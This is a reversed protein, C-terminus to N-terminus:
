RRRRLHKAPGVTRYKSSGIRVSRGRRVRPLLMLGLLGSAFLLLTPAEDLAVSFTADSVNFAAGPTADANSTLLLDLVGLGGVPVVFFREFVGSTDVLQNLLPTGDVTLFLLIQGGATGGELTNLSDFNVLLRLLTGALTFNATFEASGLASTSASESGAEAFASLFGVDASGASDAFDAGSAASAATLLPLSTPPSTDSHNDSAAGTL